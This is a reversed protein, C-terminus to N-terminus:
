SDALLSLGQYPMPGLEEVTFRQAKFGRPLADQGLGAKHKLHALFIEAEPLQEWVQPLFVARHGGAQILLGDVHPRLEARLAAETEVAIPALPSLLSIAVGLTALESATVPEFRPDHFAAAFANTVVDLALPRYPLISGICGRLAGAKDLTVFSAREAMWAPDVSAVDLPLPENHTLGHRISRAALALLARESPEPSPGPVM